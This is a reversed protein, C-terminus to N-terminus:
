ETEAWKWIEKMTADDGLIQIAVQLAEIHEAVNEPPGSRRLVEKAKAETM